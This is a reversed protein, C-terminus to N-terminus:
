QGAALAVPGMGPKGSDSLACTHRLPGCKHLAGFRHGLSWANGLTSERNM